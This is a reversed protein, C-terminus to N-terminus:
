PSNAARPQQFPEVGEISRRPRLSDAPALGTGGSEQCDTPADGLPLATSKSEVMRLNSDERGLWGTHTESLFNGTSASLGALPPSGDILCWDGPELKRPKQLWIASIGMGIYSDARQDSALIWTSRRYATLEESLFKSRLGLLLHRGIAEQIEQWVERSLGHRAEYHEHHYGTVDPPFGIRKLAIEPTEFYSVFFRGSSSM